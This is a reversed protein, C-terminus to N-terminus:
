SKFPGSLHHKSVVSVVSGGPYLYLYLPSPTSSLLATICNDFVTEIDFCIYDYLGRVKPLSAAM